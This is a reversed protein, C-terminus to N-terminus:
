AGRPVLRVGVVRGGTGEYDPDSDDLAPRVGLAQALAAFPCMRDIERAGARFTQVGRQEAEAVVEAVLRTKGIGAEGVLFLFGGVGAARQGIMQQM